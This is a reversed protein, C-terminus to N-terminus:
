TIRRLWSESLPSRHLLTRVDEYRSDQRAKSAERFRGTCDLRAVGISLPTSMGREVSAFTLTGGGPIMGSPECAM